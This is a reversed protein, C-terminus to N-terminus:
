ADAFDGDLVHEFRALFAAGEFAEAVKAFADIAAGYVFFDEFGEDLAAGAIAEAFGSGGEEGGDFAGQGAGGAVGLVAGAALGVEEAHKVVGWFTAGIAGRASNRVIAGGFFKGLEFFPG